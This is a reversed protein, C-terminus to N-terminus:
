CNPKLNLLKFLETTFHPKGVLETTGYKVNNSYANRAAIGAATLHKEMDLLNISRANVGLSKNSYQAKCIENM